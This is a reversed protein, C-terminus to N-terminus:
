QTVPATEKKRPKIFLEGFTNAKSRWVFGAGASYHTGELPDQSDHDYFLRIHRTANKDLRYELSINDIFSQNENSEKAGASVKGGIIFTVRDNWLHKAFQFSYDTQANGDSTTSGEMGISLDITKLANGALTQIESQLFTNLANNAKFSSKNTSSLYMGTALLSVALKGRGEDSMSALENQINMDEPAEILFQLGMNELTQSIAVGVNFTVMRTSNGGDNVSARTTEMAKIHLSPNYPSGTFTIHNDDKLKFTKLPIFPLEYKMEGESLKLTGLLSIDGSPLYKMTLNGGGRCDVYNSGNNGLECHMKATEAIKINLSMMMNGTVPESEEVTTTDSFDVFEVLGNLWDSETIMGEKMVYTMNTNKLIDLDGNIFMFSTTGKIKANINTYVKGYLVNSKTREANVIQFNKAQATLNLIIKELNSFDVYGDITLPNKNGQSHFIQKDLHLQSNHISVPKNEMSMNIGYLPSFVILSDPILNGNFTLQDTPGDISLEGNSYGDLALTGDAPLFANLLRCPFRQMLVTANIIGSNKETYTGNITAVEKGENQILTNLYYENASKPLCSFEAEFNGMDFADYKFRELGINGSMAMYEKQRLIHIDGGLYGGMRPLYPLVSCLEAINIHSLSVTIDNISDKQDAHIQLGTNDDALLDINAFVQRNANITLFNDKNVTFRRYAIISNEPVVRLTLSQDPSFIGKLGFDMGQKDKNDKFSTSVYFGDTLLEGNIDATFKNPNKKSKNEVSCNLRLSTSDQAIRAITKDLLLDGTKFNTVEMNGQLGNEPYASLDLAAKQFSYGHMRLYQFLPNRQGAKLSLSLGPMDRKLEPHDIKATKIQEITHSLFHSISTTIEGLKKKSHLRALFDGSRVYAFTSDQSTGLRFGISDAPIGANPMIINLNEVLGMLGTTEANLKAYGLLKLDMMLHTSDKGETLHEFALQGVTGKMTAKILKKDLSAKFHTNASLMKNESTLSGELLTKKLHATLRISDLPINGYQLQRITVSSELLTNKSMPDFGRGKLQASATLPSFPMKPLFTQLPFKKATLLLNYTINRIDIHGKSVFVGKGSHIASQTSIRDGDMGINGQMLFHSPIHIDQPMLRRFYRTNGLHLKYRTSIKRDKESLLRNIKGNLAFKMTKGSQAQFDKILLKDANGTVHAKLTVGEEPFFPLYQKISKGTAILVDKKGINGNASIDMQVQTGEQLAKLPFDAKMHFGSYPTNIHIYPISLRTSDYVIHCALDKLELGCQEAFSLHTITADLKGQTYDMNQAQIFINSLGIHNYDFIGQTHRQYPIDYRAQSKKVSMKQLSYKQQKTDALLQELEGTGLTASIRMSDNPMRLAISTNAVAIRHVLISPAISTEEKKATDQRATDSLLISLHSNKLSLGNVEATSNRLTYNAPIDMDLLGISGKVQINSIFDLSNIRANQLTLEDINIKQAFLPLIEVGLRFTRVDLLTDNGRVAQMNNLSLDLPFSLRISEISIRTNSKQSLENTVKKNLWDQIPPLYVLIALIFFLIVPTAIVIGSIRLINKTFAAKDM